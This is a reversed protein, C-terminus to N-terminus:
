TRVQGDGIIVYKITTLENLGMPGRAHMKQTSIGIEAGFGFEEGDTFRTSANVYVAASDVAMVFAEANQINNTIIVESHHSSFKRIHTIAAQLSDMVKVALKYDLFETAYDEETALQVTDGLISKTVECGLLIVNSRDLEAKIEPLLQEARSKHILLTELANCVSPRSVKANNVISVAMDADAFEDIYAHCNGVGTEIVPVTANKVVSQILGAGGRPILLDIYDNLKMMETATARDTREVLQVWNSDMNVSSLADQMVKVLITNSYIADSGGRLVCVNGSKLCLSAADITVNPRAEYIIGIVGIPVRKKLIKLGNPRTIGKEIVNVPDDLQVIKEVACAISEIRDECLALRDIMSKSTGNAEATQIDKKNEVLIEKKYTRLANAITQLAKNKEKTSSISLTVAAEKAKKGLTKLYEM